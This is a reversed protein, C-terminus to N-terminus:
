ENYFSLNTQVGVWMNVYNIRSIFNAVIYSLFTAFMASLAYVYINEAIIRVKMDRLLWSLFYRIIM